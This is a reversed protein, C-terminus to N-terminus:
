LYTIGFCRYYIVMVRQTVVWLLATRLIIDTNSGYAIRQFVLPCLIHIMKYEYYRESNLKTTSFIYSIIITIKCRNDVTHFLVIQQYHSQFFKGIDFIEKMQLFFFFVHPRRTELWINHIRLLSCANLHLLM